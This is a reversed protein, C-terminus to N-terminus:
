CHRYATCGRWEGVDEIRHCSFARRFEDLLEVGACELTICATMAAEYFRPFSTDAFNSEVFVTAKADWCVVDGCERTVWGFFLRKEV